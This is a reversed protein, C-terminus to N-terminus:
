DEGDQKQNDNMMGWVDASPLDFLEQLKRWFEVKGDARGKEIDRYVLVSVGCLRAIDGQTMNNAVRLLKLKMRM